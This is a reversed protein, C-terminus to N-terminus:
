STPIEILDDEIVVEGIVSLLHAVKTLQRLQTSDTDVESDEISMGSMASLLMYIKTLQRLQENGISVLRQLESTAVSLGLSAGAMFVWEGGLYVYPGPGYGPNWDVGDAIVGMGERLRDPPSHRIQLEIFPDAANAARQLAATELRLFGPMNAPNDPVQGPRYTKM